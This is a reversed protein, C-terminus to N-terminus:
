VNQDQVIRLRADPGILTHVIGGSWRAEVDFAYLGIPQDTQLSTLEWKLLVADGVAEAIAPWSFQEDHAPLRSAALVIADAALLDPGPWESIEIGVALADLYSDGRVFPRDFGTTQWLPQQVSIATGALQLRASESFGGVICPGAAIVSSLHADLRRPGDDIVAPTTGAVDITLLGDDVLLSNRNIRARYTGPALIPSVSAQYYGPVNVADPEDFAIAGSQPLLQGDLSFLSLSLTQGALPFWYGIDTPM